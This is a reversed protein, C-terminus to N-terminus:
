RGKPQQIYWGENPQYGLDLAIEYPCDPISWDCDKRNGIKFIITSGVQLELRKEMTTSPHLPRLKIDVKSNDIQYEEQKVTSNEDILQSSLLVPKYDKQDKDKM